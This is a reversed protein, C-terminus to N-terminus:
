EVRVTRPRNSLNRWLSRYRTSALWRRKQSLTPFISTNPATRWNADTADVQGLVFEIALEAREMALEPDDAFGGRTGHAFAGVTVTLVAGVVGGIVLGGLFGHRGKRRPGKCQEAKTEVTSGNDNSM